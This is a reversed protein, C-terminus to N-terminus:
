GPLPQISSHLPPCSTCSSHYCPHPRPPKKRSNSRNKQSKQPPIQPRIAPYASSPRANAKQSSPDFKSDNPIPIPVSKTFPCIHHGGLTRDTGRLESAITDVNIVIWLTPELSTTVRRQAISIANRRCYGDSSSRVFKTSTITERISRASECVNAPTAISQERSSIWTYARKARQLTDLWGDALKKLM